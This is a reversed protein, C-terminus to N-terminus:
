LPLETPKTSITITRKETEALNGYQDQAYAQYTYRKLIELNKFYNLYQNSQANYLSKIEQSNLARNFIMVDDISGNFYDETMFTKGITIQKHENYAYITSFGQQTSKLSGDLYAFMETTNYVLTYLHWKNPENIEVNLNNWGYDRKQINYAYISYSVINTNIPSLHFSAGNNIFSSMMEFTNSNSKAWLSVTFQPDNLEEDTNIRIYDCNVGWCNNNFNFAKGRIGQIEKPNQYIIGTDNRTGKDETNGELRWWNVLSNDWNIFTSHSNTDFSSINILVTTNIQTKYNEPTPPQFSITPNIDDIICEGNYCGYECPSCSISELTVCKGRICKSPNTIICISDNECYKAPEINLYDCERDTSCELLLFSYKDIVNKQISTPSLNIAAGTIIFSSLIIISLTVIFGLFIIQGRNKM